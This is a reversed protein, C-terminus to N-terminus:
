FFFNLTDTSATLEEQEFAIGEKNFSNPQSVEIMFQRAFPFNVLLGSGKGSFKFARELSTILLLDSKPSAKSGSPSLSEM